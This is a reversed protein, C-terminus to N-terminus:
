QLFHDKREEYVHTVIGEEPSIAILYPVPNYFECLKKVEANYHAASPCTVLTVDGEAYTFVQRTKANTWVGFYWADQDTDFQRWDGRFEDDFDFAYRETSFFGREVKNGQANTTQEPRFAGAQM